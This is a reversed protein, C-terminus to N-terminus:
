EEVVRLLNEPIFSRIGKVTDDYYHFPQDLQHNFIDVMKNTNYLDDIYDNGGDIFKNNITGVAVRVEGNSKRVYEFKTLGRVMSSVLSSFLEDQHYNMDDKLTIAM